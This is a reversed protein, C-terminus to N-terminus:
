LQQLYRELEMEDGILVERPKSGNTRGVIGARELQDMVRGARNYGIKFKRQLKSTSGLQSRVVLRAADEFLSDLEEDDELSDLEDDDMPVEPLLYPREYGQQAEIMEAVREVEPTDIFPTQLRTINSNHAFLMDGRGILQEAGNTDLIIRSNIKESVKYSIRAPFNAKIIGTIVNKDPRQTAVVLHIGVARALQALRAVPLEIEKGATMMLDALEDIILVIYPLFRHGNEPNLKRQRFKENYKTIHNVHAEKLLEYRDDMEVCLSNLVTIVQNNDTIIAEDFDPYQALFHRELKQYLSMEVKKPDILVFKVQSPHKRYLISSIISNLGVSKGQGTAGAVLIHPMKALDAIFVENSITKGLILPLEAESNRFKETAVVSRFSVVEPKSNPIEIGITGRGPIPAIIRIGIAALSLAIDDELNKIKSIRIGPAPVIEYLTITPGITAKISQIEINYHQLTHVIRNKNDELEERNIDRSQGNDYQNLLEITPYRYQSLCRTPDYEEWDSVVERDDLTETDEEQVLKEYHDQGTRAVNTTFDVLELEEPQLHAPHTPAEAVPDGPSDEIVFEIEGTTSQQSQHQQGETKAPQDDPTTEKQEPTPYAPDPITPLGDTDQAQAQQAPDNEPPTAPTQQGDQTVKRISYISTSDEEDPEDSEETAPEGPYDRYADEPDPAQFNGSKQRTKGNRQQLFALKGALSAPLFKDLPLQINLYYILVVGLSFFLLIGVGTLGIYYGLWDNLSNGLDGGLDRNGIGFIRNVLDLFMAVWYLGLFLYRFVRGTLKWYNNQLLAVSLLGFFLPILLGIYGFGETIFRQALLAGYAGAANEATTTTAEPGIETSALSQDAAGTSFHSLFAVLMYLALVLLLLGTIRRLRHLLPTQLPLKDLLALLGAFRSGQGRSSSKGTPRNTKPRNSRVNASTNAM